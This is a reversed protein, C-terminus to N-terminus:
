RAGIARATAHSKKSGALVPRPFVAPGDGDPRLAAEALADIQVALLAKREEACVRSDLLGCVCFTLLRAVPDCVSENVAWPLRKSLGEQLLSQLFVVERPSSESRHHLAPLAHGPDDDVAPNEGLWLDCVWTMWHQLSATELRVVATSANCRTEDDIIASFLEHKRAYVLYLAPRSMGAASALDGMTTRAYGRKMFVSEAASLVRARKVASTKADM